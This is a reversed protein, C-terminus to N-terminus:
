RQRSRDEVDLGHCHRNGAAGTVTVVWELVFRRCMGRLDFPSLKPLANNM